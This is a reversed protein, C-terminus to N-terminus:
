EVQQDILLDLQITTGQLQLSGSRGQWDGASAIPQNGRSLRAVVEVEDFSSLRAGSQMAMSDDLVVTTPLEAVSLKVAALPFPPGKTARAFVFITEDSQYQITDSLSVSVEIRAAAVPDSSQGLMGRAEAVGNRLVQAQGGMPPLASLAREWADIAEQYQGQEFASIGMVGLATANTSDLSLAQDLWGRAEATLQRGNALYLAQGLGASAAPDEPVLLVLQRYASAAQKYESLGLYGQAAMYWWQAPEPSDDAYATVEALFERQLEINQQDPAMAAAYRQSLQWDTLAGLRGYVMVVLVVLLGCAVLGLWRPVGNSRQIEAASGYDYLLAGDSEQKLQEYDSDTIDEALLQADLDAIRERYLDLNQENREPTFVEVRSAVFPYIVFGAALLLMASAGVIFIM